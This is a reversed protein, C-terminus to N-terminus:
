EIPPLRAIREEDPVGFIHINFNFGKGYQAQVGVFVWSEGLGGSHVWPRAGTGDTVQDEIRICTIRIPADIYIQVFWM